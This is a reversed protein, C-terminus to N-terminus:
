SLNSFKRLVWEASILLVFLVFVLPNWLLVEQRLSFTAAQPRVEDALRGLDEERYFRGGSVRAAERLADEAMGSEEQEHRPPVNVRYEFFEDAGPSGLEEGPIRLRFRGATDHALYLAYQGEFRSQQVLKVEREGEAGPRGDTRELFAKVVPKKLPRFDKDLLRAYLSGRTGLVAESRDLAVQARRGADGLLKHPLAFHYIVQGWFRAYYKDEANYRWRWTEDTGLFLVQGRGYPQTALIPMPQEGVRARPHVLLATAAPRLRTVPYNWYLGPLKAWVKLSEEPTDALSLLDSGEGAKTLVPAFAPPRADAQPPFRAPLFEVPLVEALPSGDYSAPAYRKGAIMVLGGKQDRVFEQLLKLNETGLHHADVDGLIVLDYARLEDRSPFRPLFPPGARLVQPDAQTLLFQAEVRRDRLLATQLFKYEWRPAREVYLVKVRSNSLRVPRKLEDTYAGNEKLSITVALEKQEQDDPREGEAGERQPVFSLVERLDEGRRLPLEREAVLRGGLRLELRVTGSKLGRARWRVPVTVTDDYFITEPVTVDRVQLLGGEASGVGWIHLPVGLRACERAAEDLTRKSANDQGDTVLVVAAPPDGDKRRLLGAVADALATRAQDAKYAALLRDPSGGEKDGTGSEEFAARLRGGFFYPRLPGREGLRALLKRGPDALVKKVLEIRTPDQLQDAPLGDLSAGASVPTDQPVLGRAIAARVKDAVSTRRDRQKMSQSSDLLLAVPRPREGRFEAVLAPRLLLALLLALVATRLLILLGRRVLGLRGREQAYLVVVGAAVAALVLAALWLPFSGRFTLEAGALRTHEPADIGLFNTLWEM